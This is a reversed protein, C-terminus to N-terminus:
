LSVKKFKLSLDGVERLLDATDLTYAFSNQYSQVWVAFDKMADDNLGLKLQISTM